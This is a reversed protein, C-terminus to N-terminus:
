SFEEIAFNRLSHIGGQISPIRVGINLISVANEALQRSEWYAADKAFECFWYDTTPGEPTERPGWKWLYAKRDLPDVEPM